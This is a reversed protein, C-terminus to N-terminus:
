EDYQELNFKKIINIYKDTTNAILITDGEILVAGMPAVNPVGAKSATALHLIGAKTMKEKLEPTILVM